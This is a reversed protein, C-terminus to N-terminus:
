KGVITTGWPACFKLRHSGGSFGRIFGVSGTEMESDLLLFLNPPDNAQKGFRTAELAEHSAGVYVIRM